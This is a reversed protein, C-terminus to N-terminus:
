KMLGFVSVIVIEVSLEGGSVRSVLLLWVCILLLGFIVWRSVLFRLRFSM